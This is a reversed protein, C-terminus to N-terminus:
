IYLYIYTHLLYTYINTHIITHLNYTIPVQVGCGVGQFLIFSSVGFFPLGLFFAGLEDNV